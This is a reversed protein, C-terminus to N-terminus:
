EQFWPLYFWPPEPTMHTIVLNCLSTVYWTCMTSKQGILCLIHLLYNNYCVSKFIGEHGLNLFINNFINVFLYKSKKIFM